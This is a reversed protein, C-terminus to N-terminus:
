CGGKAAGCPNQQQQLRITNQPNYIMIVIPGPRFNTIANPLNGLANGALQTVKSLQDTAIAVFVPSQDELYRFASQVTPFM